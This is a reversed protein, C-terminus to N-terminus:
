VHQGERLPPPPLALLSKFFTLPSPKLGCHEHRYIGVMTSGMIFLTCAFGIYSGVLADYILWLFCCITQTRAILPRNNRQLFALSMVTGGIMPIADYWAAFFYLGIIWSLFVASAIIYPVLRDQVFILGCDRLASFLNFIAGLPAGLMMYQTSWLCYSPINMMLIHRPNKLQWTIVNVCLGCLGVVQAWIFINDFEAFM